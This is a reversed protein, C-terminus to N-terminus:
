GSGIALFAFSGGEFETGIWFVSDIIIVSTGITEEGVHLFQLTLIQGQLTRHIGFVWAVNEVAFLEGVFVVFEDFGVDVIGFTM